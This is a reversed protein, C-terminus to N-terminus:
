CYKREAWKKGWAVMSKNGVGGIGYAGLFRFMRLATTQPAQKAVVAMREAFTANEVNYMNLALLHMPAAVLQM